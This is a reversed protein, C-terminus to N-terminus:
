GHPTKESIHIETTDSFIMHLKIEGMGVNKEHMTHM